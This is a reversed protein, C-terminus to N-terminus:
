MFELKGAIGGMESVSIEGDKVIKHIETNESFRELSSLLKSGSVHCTQDRRKM